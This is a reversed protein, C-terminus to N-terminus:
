GPVILLLSLKLHFLVNAREQPIFIRKGNPSTKGTTPSLQRLRGYDSPNHMLARCFSGCLFFWFSLLYQAKCFLACIVLFKCHFTQIPFILPQQDKKSIIKRSITVNATGNKVTLLNTVLKHLSKQSLDANLEIFVEQGEPRWLFNCKCPMRTWVICLWM